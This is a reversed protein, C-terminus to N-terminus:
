FTYKLAFQIIRPNVSTATIQGFTAPTSVAVAPNAFQPHNFANFFESRFMVDQSEKIRFNKEISIDWNFNGPGLIIGPGSNGFMTPMGAGPSLASNPAIPEGCFASTNFFGPGGSRGGLRSTTSGSTGIQGYSTGPCMQARATDYTGIAYVTGGNQDTITMPTGDQLITVGSVNWGNALLGMAGTHQGFPLDYRYNVVFRQPRNFGVPGYQQGLASPLNSNAGSGSAITPIDSLDKSWTYSGQMLFGHSFQKRLTVQLSNYNSIGDFSTVQFGSTGYGLIPVRLPANDVTNVTIGNIPTSPSALLPANVDHYQDELNIGSSGVYGVELVWSPALEYQVNINYQRILPTHLSETLSPTNLNSNPAGAICSPQCGNFNVWRSAFVGLPTSPYPNQNSYPAGAGPGSYDLTVAYPYGQELGHVFTGGGTRDYFMGFGGRIVFKGDKRPQWAFGFRPAFNDM